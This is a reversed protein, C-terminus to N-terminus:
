SRLLRRMRRGIRVLLLLGCVLLGGGVGVLVPWRRPDCDMAPNHLCVSLAETDGHLLFDRQGWGSLALTGGLIALAIALFALIAYAVLKTRIRANM